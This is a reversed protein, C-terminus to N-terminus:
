VLPNAGLVCFFPPFKQEPQLPFTEPNDWGELFYDLVVVSGTTINGSFFLGILEATVLINLKLCVFHCVSM